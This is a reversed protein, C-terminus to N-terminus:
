YKQINKKKKNRPYEQICQFLNQLVNLSVMSRNLPYLFMKLHHELLFLKARLPRIVEIAVKCTYRMFFNEIKNRKM